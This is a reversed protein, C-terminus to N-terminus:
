SNIKLIKGAEFNTVAGGVRGITYLRVFPKDTYPDRTIRLGLRDVITYFEMWDAYVVSLNNAAVVPMDAMFVVNKGLLIKESGTKIIRPDLLYAGNSDKLQMISSFSTRHMGFSAGAQYEEYLSNQLSILDDAEDLTGATGTAIIQEVKNREYVGASAWAPYTLFGKPRKSSNGIVFSQNQNRSFKRAVKNNNWAEIDFGADDIMKQSIRPNSYQEHVPIKILGIESTNTKPRAEVEGVWGSDYEDDDLPLEWVDSNTTVINCLPRLPSTEFIRTSISTSRDPVVFYGGDPGSAAILDKTRFEVSEPDGIGLTELEAQGKCLKQVLEVNIPKGRKIYDSMAKKYELEQRADTKDHGGGRAIVLEIDEFRKKIELNKLENRINQSDEYSKAALDSTKKINEVDLGDYSKTLRDNVEQVHKIQDGLENLKKLLEQYDSM